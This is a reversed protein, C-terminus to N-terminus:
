LKLIPSLQEHAAPLIWFCDDNRGDPQRPAVAKKKYSFTIKYIFEPRENTPEGVSQLKRTCSFPSFFNLQDDAKGVCLFFFFYFIKEGCAGQDKALGTRQKGVKGMPVWWCEFARIEQSM